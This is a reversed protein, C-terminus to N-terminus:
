IKFATLVHAFELATVGKVSEANIFPDFAAPLARTALEGAERNTSCLARIGVSANPLNIHGGGFPDEATM